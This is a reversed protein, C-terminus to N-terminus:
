RTNTTKWYFDFSRPNDNKPRAQQKYFFLFLSTLQQDRLLNERLQLVQLAPSQLQRKSEHLIGNDALNQLKRARVISCRKGRECDNEEDRMMRPFLVWQRGSNVARGKPLRENIIGRRPSIMEPLLLEAETGKLEGPKDIM